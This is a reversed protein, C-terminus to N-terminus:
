TFRSYFNLVGSSSTNTTFTNKLINVKWAQDSFTVVGSGDNNIFYNGTIAVDNFSTTNAFFHIIGHNGSSNFEFYNDTITINVRSWFDDIAGHINNNFFYNNRIESKTTMDAGGHGLYLGGNANNQITDSRVLLSSSNQFYQDFY